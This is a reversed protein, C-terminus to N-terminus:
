GPLPIDALADVGITPPVVDGGPPPTAIGGAGTLVAVSDPVPQRLYGAYALAAAPEVALGFRGALLRQAAVAEDDEVAVAFGGSRLVAAAALDGDPPRCLGVATIRTTSAACPEVTTRAAAVADHIPSCGAAQVAVLRPVRASTGRAYLDAFAAGLTALLGGGGAPVYVAAPADGRAAVIEAAIAALADMAEPEVARATVGLVLGRAAAVARLHDYVATEVAPDRGFGAVARVTTGFAALWGARRADLGEVTLLTGTLGARAGAAAFALGANGSSAGVWGRAGAAVGASIAREAIRDKFSGTGDGLHECKLQLEGADLLPTPHAPTM